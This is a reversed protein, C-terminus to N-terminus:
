WKWNEPLGRYHNDCRSECALAETIEGHTRCHMAEAKAMAYKALIELRSAVHELTEQDLGDLNLEGLDPYTIM